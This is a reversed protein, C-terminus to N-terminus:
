YKAQASSTTPVKSLVVAIGPTESSLVFRIARRFIICAAGRREAKRWQCSFGHWALRVIPECECMRKEQEAEANAESGSEGRCPWQPRAQPPRQRANPAPPCSSSDLALPLDAAPPSGQSGAVAFPHRGHPRPPPPRSPSPPPPRLARLRASSAPSPGPAPPRQPGERSKHDGVCQRLLVCKKVPGNVKSAAATHFGNATPSEM